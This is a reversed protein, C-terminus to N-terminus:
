AIYYKTIPPFCRLIKSEKDEFEDIAEGVLTIGLGADLVTDNQSM